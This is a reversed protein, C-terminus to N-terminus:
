PWPKRVILWGSEGDELPWTSDIVTLRHFNVNATIATSPTFPAATGMPLNLAELLVREDHNLVVISIIPRRGM